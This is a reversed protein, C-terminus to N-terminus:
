EKFLLFLGIRMWGAKRMANTSFGKDDGVEAIVAVGDDLFALCAYGAAKDHLQIYTGDFEHKYGELGTKALYLVGRDDHGDEAKVGKAGCYFLLNDKVAIGAACGKPPTPLEFPTYNGADFWQEGGNISIYKKRYGSHRINGILAGDPAEAVTWEGSEGPEGVKWTEGNDDSYLATNGGNSVTGKELDKKFLRVPIILRDKYKENRMQVGTGPGFTGIIGIFGEINPIIVEDTIDRRKWTIGDDDSMLLIARNAGGKQNSPKNMADWLSTFLFIKGSNRDVVVTPDMYTRTDYLGLETLNKMESWSRGKDTSRKMVIDARGAKDMWTSYRAECFVLISGKNTVCISPIRYTNVYNDGANFITYSLVGKIEPNVVKPKKGAFANDADSCSILSLLLLICLSFIFDKKKNKM